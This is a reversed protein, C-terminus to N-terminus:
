LVSFVALFCVEAEVMSIAVIALLAVLFLKLYKM